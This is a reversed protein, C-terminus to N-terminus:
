QAPKRLTVTIASTTVDEFSLGRGSFARPFRLILDLDETVSGLDFAVVECGCTEFLSQFQNLRWGNIPQLTTRARGLDYIGLDALKAAVFQESFLFQPYPMTLTRFAHLGWPSRALPGFSLHILGAPKSARVLERLAAAPDPFHEFANYCFILDFHDAPLATEGCLDAAVFPLTAARRDRWDELDALTLRHGYGAIAFGTMGDGCAADLVEAAARDKGLLPILSTAREVGRRWSSYADYGYADAGRYAAQLADFADQSASVDPPETRRLCSEVEARRRQWARARGWDRAQRCAKGGYQTIAVVPTM